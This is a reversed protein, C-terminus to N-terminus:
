DRSHYMKRIEQASLPRNFIMVEDITGLLHLDYPGRGSQRSGISLNHENTDFAGSYAQGITETANVYIRLREGDAVGVVHYWVNTQIAQASIAAVYSAGNNQRRVFRFRGDAGDLFWSEGYGYGKACIVETYGTRSVKVWAAVAMKAPLDLSRHHEVSIYNEPGAFEFAGGVRGQATWKANHVTGHNGHESRDSVKQGEDRDFSFHVIVGEIGIVGRFVRISRVHQIDVSVPGFITELEMPALNLHGSLNDGNQLEFFMTERDDKIGINVIQELPIDMKAYSTQIPVSANNPVGIIHSGDVLTIAVRLPEVKLNTNSPTEDSPASPKEFPKGSPPVEMAIEAMCVTAALGALIVSFNKLIRM